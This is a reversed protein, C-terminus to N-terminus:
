ALQCGAHVMEQLAADGTEESVAAVLDTLVKVEFGEKLGDLVTAKVCYDTAIGVVDIIDIDNRRLWDVLNEGAETSGEFGSYAPTYQGKYFVADLDDKLKEVGGAFAAGESDAQCHVPWSDVFDPETSFHDGPDIHWDKTALLAAYRDKREAIYESIANAVQMGKETALTGGPCFDNQVDVLLLARMPYLRAFGWRLSTSQPLPNIADNATPNQLNPRTVAPQCLFEM